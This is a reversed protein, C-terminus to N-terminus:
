GKGLNGEYSFIAIPIIPKRYKNYLLSFYHFMREHFNTQVYSQPEIHVIVIIDTNKLKTEAVIDLRRTEGEILNTYVEESIPKIAQFDLHEHVEPFFAILFEKFFTSILEKYLQDHKTYTQEPPNEKILEPLAAMADCGKSNQHTLQSATETKLIAHNIM